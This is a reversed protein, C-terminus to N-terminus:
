KLVGCGEDYSGFLHDSTEIGVKITYCRIEVQKAISQIFVVSRLKMNKTECICRAYNSASETIPTNIDFAQPEQNCGMLMILSLILIVKM